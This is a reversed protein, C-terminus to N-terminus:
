NSLIIIIVFFTIIFFGICAIRICYNRRKQKYKKIKELQINAKEINNFTNQINAEINDINNGQYSVLLSIDTFLDGVERVGRTLKNIDREREELNIDIFQDQM